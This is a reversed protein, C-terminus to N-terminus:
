PTVGPRNQFVNHNVGGAPNGANDLSQPNQAPPAGKWPAPPLSGPASPPPGGTQPIAGPPLPGPPLGSAGQTMMMMQTKEQEAQHIKDVLEQLEEKSSPLIDDVDIELMKAAARLLKARGEIGIIQNDVPNNTKDLFEQVRVLLQEKALLSTSGRAIIKADGKINEDPDYMMNFDYTRSITEGVIKDLHSIVEKISRSASTMLMSLGSSTGGAGGVNTTGYSWRPVGTQDDSMNAFTEYVRMLDAVILQPQWFKIAPGDLMQKNTSEWIKWPYIQEADKCREINIEVQPGSALSCNNVIARAVANCVDQLDAMLEPLGKGWWAGPIREFSDKSYPKRGLRDPNIIARITYNGILWANIDYNLQPDIGDKPLGWDILDSGQASGWFELAEIKYEDMLGLTSGTFMLLLQSDTPLITRYGKKGYDELASRIASESFGPVGIMSELDARTLMHREFFYGDDFSTSGPEPYADFPSVRDFEPILTEEVQVQWQQSAPDQEWKQQKRRRVVPGKLIAAKLTVLDSIVAWFAEAWGGAMLQDDIKDAMRDARREAEMLINHQAEDQLDEEYKQLEEQIQTIPVGSMGALMLQQQLEQLVSFTQMRIQKAIDDPLEPIPCPKIGWPRDAVPRLIDNIWAEAARCKTLTLMVYVASGGMREIRAAIDNEYIGYRQRLNILMQQEIPIKAQRAMAWCHKLYSTLGPLDPPADASALAAQRAAEEAALADNNRIKVLGLSSVGPTDTPIASM